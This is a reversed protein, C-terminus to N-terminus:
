RPIIKTITVQNTSHSGQDKIVSDTDPCSSKRFMYAPRKPCPLAIESSLMLVVVSMTPRDEVKEQVCLLGIQICRLVEDPVYSELLSDVIDSARDEKWLEWVHGILNISSGQRYCHNNKIGSVIELLLVGFSFVDSKTSFKGFVAYEPSMYGYTGVVRNTKDQIQDGKFIRAMGFDSIKPTMEGDLLVNSAKLDRHIIRLRSDQHLYLLGRAVGIIIDFRTRWDLCSRRTQDFIFSDLSKNPMYEYILMKEERHICFGLLKVLNRHQLKAILTIENKFEELGQGSSHSLRKVAIKQGNSLQGEHVPGFGGQGLKNALSFNDTAAIITSLHFFPLNPDGRREDHEHKTKQKKKLWWYAFAVSLLLSLAVSSILVARMGKQRLFGKGKGPNEALYKSDARIYLDLGFDTYEVIDMLEGYWTFCGIQGENSEISMFATCSCNRLCAEECERGSVRTEWWLAAKSTDPRKVRAVTLFGEGNQCWSMSSTVRKRVCGDSGNRQNWNTPSEPEFGPLCECMFRNINDPSCKSNIGCGGYADCRYEPTAWFEDWRFNYQSWELLQLSGTNNVVTRILTSPKTPFVTYYVEEQNDVYSYINADVLQTSPESRYPWPSSRWIKTLNKFLFFQPSGALDIKYSYDGTGPDDQSKWSTIFWQLGTRRNLGLKMGPLLTDTPYDFSQWLPTGNSNEEVLVLNGTDLLQASISGHSATVTGNISTSWVPLADSNNGGFLVLNGYGNITLVGSTDNIPHDRNAVWVVTKEPQKSYWIGLYWNSSNARNFFGLEFKNERSSITDGFEIPFTPTITNRSSTCFPLLFFLLLLTNLFM